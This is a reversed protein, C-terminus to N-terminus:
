ATQYTLAAHRSGANSVIPTSPGTVRTLTPRRRAVSLGHDAELAPAQAGELTAQRIPYLTTNVAVNYLYGLTNDLGFKKIAFDILGIDHSTFKLAVINEVLRVSLDHDNQLAQPLITTVASMLGLPKWSVTDPDDSPHIIINDATNNTSERQRKKGETILHPFSLFWFGWRLKPLHLVHEAAGADNNWILDDLMWLNSHYPVMEALIGLSPDSWYDVVRDFRRDRKMAELSLSPTESYALIRQQWLQLVKNHTGKTMLLGNNFLDLGSDGGLKNLSTLMLKDDEVTDWIEDFGKFVLTSADLYLGGYRILVALRLLDSRHQVKLSFFTTPLDSVGVYQQYNNDDLIIVRWDPNRVQWSKVSHRCIEPMGQLGKDWYAWIIRTDNGFLDASNKPEDWIYEFPRSVVAPIAKAQAASDVTKGVLVLLQAISAIDLNQPLSRIAILCMLAASTVLPTWFVRRERQQKEPGHKGARNIAAATTTTTTNSTILTSRTEMNM